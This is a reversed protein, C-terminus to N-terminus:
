PLSPLRGKSLAETTIEFRCTCVVIGGAQSMCELNPSQPRINAKKWQSLRKVKGSLKLASVCHDKTTESIVWKFKPDDKATEKGLNQANVAAKIWLDARKFVTGLKGKNAKSNKEIFDIVGTIYSEQTVVLRTRELIETNTLEDPKVGVEAAGENYAQPLYLRITSSMASYFGGADMAGSWLGRFAARIGSRYNQLAKNTQLAM